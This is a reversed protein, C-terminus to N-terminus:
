CNRWNLGYVHQNKNVKPDIPPIDLGELRAQTNIRLTTSVGCSSWGWITSGLTKTYDGYYPGPFTFQFTPGGSVFGPFWYSSTQKFIVGRDLQAYGTYDYKSLTFQYGPPYHFQINVNCNKIHLPPTYPEFEDFLITLTQLAESYSVSATGPKCGTGVYTVGTITVQGANLSAFFGLVIASVSYKM